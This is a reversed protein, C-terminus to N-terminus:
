HTREHLESRTKYRLNSVKMGKEIVSLAQDIVTDKENLWVSFAESVAKALYGKKKGYKEEAKKRFQDALEESINLTITHM